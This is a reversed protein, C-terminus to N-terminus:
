PSQPSVGVRGDLRREILEDKYLGAGLIARFEQCDIKPAAKFAHVFDICSFNSALVGRFCSSFTVVDLKLFYLM